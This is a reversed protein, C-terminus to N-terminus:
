PGLPSENWPWSIGIATRQVVEGDCWYILGNDGFQFATNPGAPNGVADCVFSGTCALGAEPPTRPWPVGAPDYENPCRSVPGQVPVISGSSDCNLACVRVVPQGDSLSLSAGPACQWLSICCGDMENVQGCRPSVLPEDRTCASKRAEALLLVGNVCKATRQTCDPLLETCGTERTFQCSDGSRGREFISGGPDCTTWTPGASADLPPYIGAEWVDPYLFGADGDLPTPSSGDEETSAVPSADMPPAFTGSSELVDVEAACCVLGLLTIWWGKSCIARAEAMFTEIMLWGSLLGRPPLRSM